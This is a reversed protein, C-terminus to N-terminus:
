QKKIYRTAGLTQMFLLLLIVAICLYYLSETGHEHAACGIHYTWYRLM